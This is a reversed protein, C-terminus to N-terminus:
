EKYNYHQVSEWGAILKLALSVDTMNISSDYNINAAWYLDVPWGSIYKLINSVDTLNLVDDVNSDGTVDGTCVYAITYEAEIYKINKGMATNISELAADTASKTKQTIYVIVEKPYKQVVFSVPIYSFDDISYNKASKLTIIIKGYIGNFRRPNTYDLYEDESFVPITLVGSFLMVMTLFLATIRKTLKLHKM